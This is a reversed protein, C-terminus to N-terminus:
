VRGRFKFARAVMAVSGGGGQRAQEIQQFGLPVLGAALCEWSFWGAASHLGMCTAYGTLFAVIPYAWDPLRM